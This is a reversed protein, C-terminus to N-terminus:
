SGSPNNKARCPTPLSPQLSSPNLRRQYTGSMASLEFRGQRPRISRRACRQLSRKGNRALAAAFRAYADDPMRSKIIAVLTHGVAHAGLDDFHLCAM